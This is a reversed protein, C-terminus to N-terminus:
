HTIFNEKTLKTVIFKTVESYTTTLKVHGARTGNICDALVLFVWKVDSFCDPMNAQM